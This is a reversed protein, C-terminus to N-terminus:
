EGNSRSVHLKPYDLFLLRGEKEAVEPWDINELGISVIGCTPIATLTRGTLWEACDTIVFNHGVLALANIESATNRIVGLLTDLDATYIEELYQITGKDYGIADCIIRATKKARRAPSSLLMDPQICSDRLRKGMFAADRKGRKNLPRNFDTLSPDAWSSKAHRILYLHKM